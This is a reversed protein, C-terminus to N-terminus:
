TAFLQSVYTSARDLFIPNTATALALNYAQALPEVLTSLSNSLLNTASVLNYTLFPQINEVYPQIASDLNNFLQSMETRNPLYELANHFFGAVRDISQLHEPISANFFKLEPFNNPGDETPSYPFLRNPLYLSTIGVFYGTLTGIVGGIIGCNNVLRNNTGGSIQKGILTGLYAGWLASTAASGFFGSANVIRFWTDYDPFDIHQDLLRFGAPAIYTALGAVTIATLPLKNFVSHLSEVHDAKSTAM